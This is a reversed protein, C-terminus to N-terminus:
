DLYKKKLIKGWNKTYNLNKDDIFVDYRPKGM